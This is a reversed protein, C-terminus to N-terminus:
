SLLYELAERKDGAPLRQLRGGNQRWSTLSSFRGRNKGPSRFCSQKPSGWHLIVVKLSAIGQKLARTVSPGGAGRSLFARSLLM